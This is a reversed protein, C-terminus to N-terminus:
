RSMACRGTRDRYQRDLRDADSAFRHSRITPTIDVIQRQSRGFFHNRPGAVACDSWQVLQAPIWFIMQVQVVGSPPVVVDLLQDQSHRFHYFIVTADVVHGFFAGVGFSVQKMLPPRQHDFEDLLIMRVPSPCVLSVMFGDGAGREFLM